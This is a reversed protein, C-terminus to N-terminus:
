KGGKKLTGPSDVLNWPRIVADTFYRVHIPDNIIFIRTSGYLMQKLRLGDRM